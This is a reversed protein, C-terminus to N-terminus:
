SEYSDNGSTINLQLGSADSGIRETAGGVLGASGSQNAVAAAAPRLALAQCVVFHLCAQARSGLPQVALSAFPTNATARRLGLHIFVLLREKRSYRQAPSKEFAATKGHAGILHGEM